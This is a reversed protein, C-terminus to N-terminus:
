GSVEGRHFGVVARSWKPDRDCILQRGPRLVREVGDTLHRMAQVVFAEDPYHTCGVVEARRSRLEIVFETYFTV